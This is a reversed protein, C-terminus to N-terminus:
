TVRAFKIRPRNLLQSILEHVPGQFPSGGIDVIYPWHEPNAAWEAADKNLPSTMDFNRWQVMEALMTVLRALGMGPQYREMLVGLCVAGDSTRINPHFIRTLWQVRPARRPYRAGLVIEARHGTVIRPTHGDEQLSEFSRYDLTLTYKFPAHDLNAEFKVHPNWEVLDIIEQHDAVLARVRDREDVRGAISEPFVRLVAGDWLGADEVSQEGRLRKTRDPNEPDVLEVVARQGRGRGDRTPWSRSDFFDAALTSLETDAPVECEFREGDPSEIYLRVTGNTSKSM